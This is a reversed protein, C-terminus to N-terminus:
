DTIGLVERVKELVQQAQVPKTLYATAGLALAREVDEPRGETTLMIVPTRQHRPDKRMVELLKLGDMIPMNIDLMILDFVHEKLRRMAHLGDEAEMCTLNPVRSLAFLVLQRMMASDEVVLARRPPEQQAVERTM